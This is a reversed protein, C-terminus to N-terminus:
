RNSKEVQKVPTVGAQEALRAMETLIASQININWPTTYVPSRTGEYGGERLVTESPIYAMIDNSYGMVFIDPGFTKKLDIAYQVLLEGGLAMIVQDGLKWVECPYPYSDKITEGQDLRKILERAARKLYDPTKSSPEIEKLLQERTPPPGAFQLDIESYATSIVPNLEKMNESLVREVASALTRGYQKALPITRRPLPNQDAGAGQFFLATTGPYLKELEIQAFGPYDGSFQYLSLVTAHCAYGFAVAMLEGAQNLVKLVPVAYDNPGNLDNIRTSQAEPNNRRNVQFRTVGNGSFIRAPELSAIARGVMDVVMNEYKDSYAKVKRLQEDNLPYTNSVPDFLVPGSHTHSCNLIIQSRTLGYKAGIRDRIRDSYYKPVKVLDNTILVVKKGKADQIALAKSWLDHIVGESPHDRAAYGAQWLSEGPTIAVKAVGAKWTGSEPTVDLASVAPFLLSLLVFIVSLSIIKM